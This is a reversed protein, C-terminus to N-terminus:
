RSQEFKKRGALGFLTLLALSGLAVLGENSQSGTQPLAAQQNHLKAVAQGPVAGTGPRNIGPKGPQGPLPLQGTGGTGPQDPHVPAVAQYTVVVTQNSTAADVAQAAVTDVDATYGPYQPVTFDPWTSSSPQWDGWDTVGTALNKVGSRTFTVTQETIHVTGDPAEVKITRVVQKTDTVRETKATYYIEVTQDATDPTVVQAAVTSQSSTYNAIAPVPYEAWSHNDVTLASWASAQSQDSGTLM